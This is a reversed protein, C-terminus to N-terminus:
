DVRMVVGAVVRDGTLWGPYIHAAHDDTGVYGVSVTARRWQLEAGANFYWYGTGVLDGLDHHGVGATLNVHAALPYRASAEYSLATRNRIPGYRSFVSYDPAIGVALQLTDRWSLSGRLETYDYSLWRSDSRFIYRTAGLDIAFDAAPLFRRAVYLDFESTAGPGPNLNVTSAWVGATFGRSSTLSAEAQVAPKGLSRTLGYVVYDSVVAVSAQTQVALAQEGTALLM